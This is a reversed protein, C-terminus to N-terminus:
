RINLIKHLQLSLRWDPHAICFNMADKTLRDNQEKDGTDCPQIVKHRANISDYVSPNFRDTYVVKLEDCESLKVEANSCFEYKPSLTVHDIGKPLPNTGNTEIAIKCDLDKIKAILDDDIFLSPEGGTLVVLRCPAYRNIADVIEDSTMFEGDKHDTDCFPCSLNCGSFRIFVAARGANIGEGQLSLFIENIRYRKSM